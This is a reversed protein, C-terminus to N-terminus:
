ALYALLFYDYDGFVLHCGSDNGFISLWVYVYRRFLLQVFYSFDFKEYMFKKLSM